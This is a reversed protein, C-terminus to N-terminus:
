RARQRARRCQQRRRRRLPLRGHAGQAAGRQRQPVELGQRSRQAGGRADAAHVGRGRGVGRDGRARGGGARGAVRRGPSRRSTQSWWRRARRWAPSRPGAARWPHPAPTGQTRGQTAPARARAAGRTARWSCWCTRARCLAADSTVCWVSLWAMGAHLLRLLPGSPLGPMRGRRELMRQLGRLGGLLSARDGFSHTTEKCFPLTSCAGFTQFRLPVQRELERQADRLGELWFTWRRATPYPHASLLFAAVILPTGRATAAARAVDLAPNEEARVATRM